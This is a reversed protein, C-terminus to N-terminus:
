KDLDFVEGGARTFMAKLKKEGASKLDIGRVSGDGFLMQTFDPRSAGTLKALPKKEDFAYDDPKAWPVMDASEVVMVTNSTGDTFDVIKLKKGAEFAAGPGKVGLYNTLGYGNPDEINQSSPSLFTKIKLKAMEKNNASDWPEDLKMRKYVNDQEIYPLIQVRWSLIPKGDKDIIDTPLHGNASEYNLIALGIQKLNNASTTRAAAERVKQVAPLLLGIGIASVAGSAAALEKPMTATVALQKGKQTILNPDALLDDLRGLSGLAFVAAIAEPLEQAPRPTKINPDFLKKEFEQKQKALENRGLALLKTAAKHAEEAAAASKYSAKVEVKAQTGLDLTVQLIEARLLAHVEVPLEKLAEPPIPIAAINAAAVIPKSAAAKLAAAMPGDKAAPRTFYGELTGAQGILIHRNDPFSIELGLNADTYVMKGAVTKREAKPLFSTAVQVPAFPKSFALIGYVQPAKGREDMLVFATGRELSSPAPAFQADLTALAKEGAREWTQRFPAFTENKWLDALRVHVFGVADAPVLALDASVDEEAVAAVFPEAQAVPVPQFAVVAALLAGVAAPGLLTCILLRM